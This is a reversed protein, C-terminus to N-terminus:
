VPIDDSDDDMCYPTLVTFEPASEAPSSGTHRWLRANLWVSAEVIMDNEDLVDDYVWYRVV